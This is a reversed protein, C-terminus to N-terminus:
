DLDGRELKGLDEIEIDHSDLLGQYEETLENSGMADFKELAEEEDRALINASLTYWYPATVKYKRMM